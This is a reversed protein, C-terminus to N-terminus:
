LKGNLRPRPRRRLQSIKHPQQTGPRIQPHHPPRRTGHQGATRPPVYRHGPRHDRLHPPSQPPQDPGRHRRHPHTTPHHPISRQTTLTERHQHHIAASGHHPPTGHAFAPVLDAGNTGLYENLAVATPTPVAVKASKRGKRRITLTRHGSDPGYDTTRAGLAEGGRIGTFMLLAVLAHSRPDDTRAAALLARAQDRTLGQTFSHDADVAPRTVTAVPNLVTAGDAIAYKSFSSLAALTRAITPPAGTLTHRYGDVDKHLVSATVLPQDLRRITLPSPTRRLQACERESGPVPHDSLRDGNARFEVGRFGQVRARWHEVVSSCSSLCHVPM